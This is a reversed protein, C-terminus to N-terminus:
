GAGGMVQLAKRGHLMMETGAKLQELLLGGASLEM